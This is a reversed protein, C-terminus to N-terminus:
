RGRRRQERKRARDERVIWRVMADHEEGTLQEVERPTM